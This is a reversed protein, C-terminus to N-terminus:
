GNEREESGEPVEKIAGLRPRRVRGVRVKEVVAALEKHEVLQQALQLLLARANQDEALHRAHEVNQLVVAEPLAVLVAAEVALDGIGAGVGGCDRNHEVRFTADHMAASPVRPDGSM